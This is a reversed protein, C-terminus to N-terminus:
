ETDSSSSSTSTNQFILIVILGLICHRLSSRPPLLIIKSHLFWLLLLPFSPASKPNQLFNLARKSSCFRARTSSKGNKERFGTKCTIFTCGLAKDHGLLAIFYLILRVTKGKRRLRKSARSKIPKHYYHYIGVYYNIICVCMCFYPHSSTRQPMATATASRRTQTKTKLADYFQSVTLKGRERDMAFAAQKMREKVDGAQFHRARLEIQHSLYMRRSYNNRLASGWHTQKDNKYKELKFQNHQLFVDIVRKPRASPIEPLRPSPRLLALANMM